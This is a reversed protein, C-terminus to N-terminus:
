RERFAIFYLAVDFYELSVLGRLHEVLVHLFKIHRERRSTVCDRCNCFRKVHLSCQSVAVNGERFGRVISFLASFISFRLDVVADYLRRPILM